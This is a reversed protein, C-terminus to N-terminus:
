VRKIANNIILSSLKGNLAGLGSSAGTARSAQSMAMMEMEGYSPMKARDSPMAAKRSKQRELAQRDREALEQATM